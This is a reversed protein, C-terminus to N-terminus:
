VELVERLPGGEDIARGGRRPVVIMDLNERLFKVVREITAVDLATERPHELDRLENTLKALELRTKADALAERRRAALRENTPRGIKHGHVTYGKPPDPPRKPRGWPWNM